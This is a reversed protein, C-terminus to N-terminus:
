RKNFKSFDFEFTITNNITSIVKYGSALLHKIVFNNDKSVELVMRKAGYKKLAKIIYKQSSLESEKVDITENIIAATKIELADDSYPTTEILGIFETDNRVMAETGSKIMREYLKDESMEELGLMLYGQKEVQVGESPHFIAYIDKKDKEELPRFSIKNAPM